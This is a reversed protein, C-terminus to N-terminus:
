NEDKGCDNNESEKADLYADILSRMEEETQPRTTRINKVSDGNEVLTVNNYFISQFAEIGRHEVKDVM